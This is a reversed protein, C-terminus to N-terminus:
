CFCQRPRDPPDGGADGWGSAADRHALREPTRGSPAAELGCRILGSEIVGDLDGGFGAAELTSGGVIGLRITSNQSLSSSRKM